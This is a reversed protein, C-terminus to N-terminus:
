QISSGGATGANPSNPDTLGGGLAQHYQIRNIARNARATIVSSEANLRRTQADILNFISVLGNTYQRQALKEAEVAEELSRQQAEEQQKLLGDAAIADEVERWATLTTIAYNAVAVEARAIAADREAELTGGDIM